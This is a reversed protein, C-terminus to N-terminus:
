GVKFPNEEYSSARHGAAKAAHEKAKEDNGAFQQVAKAHEHATAAVRHMKPDNSKNASKTFRDANDSAEDEDCDDAAAAAADKRRRMLEFLNM